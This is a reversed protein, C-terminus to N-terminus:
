TKRLAILVPKAEKGKFLVADQASTNDKIWNSIKNAPAIALPIRSEGLGHRFELFYDRNTLFIRNCIKAAEKGVREHESAAYRGLEKMPQMVLIKKGKAMRLINLGAIAADPNNNFTDDIIWAGNIGKKVHATDPLPAFKELHKTAEDLDMGLSWAVALAALINQVQHGGALQSKVNYKKGNFELTFTLGSLTPKINFGKLIKFNTKNKLSQNHTTYVYKQYVDSTNDVMKLTYINDANFIAIKPNQLSAILEYKAAVTNELSGFLDQHQANVATVVGIQPKVLRCISAIEGKKYAGMEVVMVQTEPKLRKLILEAAAILSNQSKETKIVSFKQLLLFATIEKVTTKGFSGTVGVVTLDPYSRMKTYALQVALWHYILTPGKLLTVWFSVLPFSLLLTLIIGRWTNNFYFVLYLFSALSLLTLLITKPTRPPIKLPLFYLRRGSKTKLYILMRDWRYEHAYWIFIFTLTLKSILILWLFLLISILGNM